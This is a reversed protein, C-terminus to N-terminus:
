GTTLTDQILKMFFNQFYNLFKKLLLIKNRRRENMLLCKIYQIAKISHKSEKSLFNKM